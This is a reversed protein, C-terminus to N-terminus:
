PRATVARELEGLTFPKRLLVAGCSALEVPLNGPAWATMAVVRIGAAHAARCVSVGSGDPLRIDTVVVELGGGHEAIADLAGVVGETSVVEYGLSALVGSV